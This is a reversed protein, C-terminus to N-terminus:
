KAVAPPQAEARVKEYVGILPAGGEGGARVEGVKKWGVPEAPYQFYSHVLYDADEGAAKLDPRLEPFAPQGKIWVKAGPRALRNVVRAAEFEGEGWWPVELWKKRAVAGVGGTWESFYDLEYPHIRASSFALYLALAVQPFYPSWVVPRAREAVFRGLADLGWAAAFALAPFAPFVYRASDQRFPVFSQGFPLVLWCLILLDTTSRRRAATLVWPLALLLLGLPNVALFVFPHYWVPPKCLKGLFFEDPEYERKFISSAHSLPDNWLSPWLAFLVGLAVAAGAFSWFFKLFRRPERVLRPLGMVAVVLAFWVGTSRVGLNLVSAFGWLAHHWGSGEVFGVILFYASLAFLLGAASELGVIWGQSLFFPTLALAVAAGIGVELSVFRRGLLLLVLCTLAQMLASLRKAGGMGDAAGGLGYVWKAFPPHEEHWSFAGSSFDGLQVNRVYNLGGAFYAFEDYHIDTEDVPRLRAGLAIALVVVAAIWERRTFVPKGKRLAWARALLAIGLGLLALSAAFLWSRLSSKTGLAAQAADRTPWALERDFPRMETGNPGIMRLWYFRLYRAGGDARLRVKVEHVGADLDFRGPTVSGDRVGTASVRSVGDVFVEAEGISRVAVQYPGRKEVPVYAKWEASFAPAEKARREFPERVLSISSPEGEWKANEFRRVVFGHGAPAWLLWAYTALGLAVLLGGALATRKASTASPSTM